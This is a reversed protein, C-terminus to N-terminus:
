RTSITSSRESSLNDPLFVTRTQHRGPFVKKGREKWFSSNGSGFTWLLDAVFWAVQWLRGRIAVSSVAPFYDALGYEPVRWVELLISYM